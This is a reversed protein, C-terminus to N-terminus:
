QMEQKSLPDVNVDGLRRQIEEAGIDTKCGRTIRVNWGQKGMPDRASGPPPPNPNQNALITYDRVAKDIAAEDPLVDGPPM